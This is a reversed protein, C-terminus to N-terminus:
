QKVRSLKDLIAQLQAPEVPKTLHFVFGAEAAGQKDEEQGLGSIAIITPPRDGAQRRIEPAIDCGNLGPLGIDLLVVDPHFHNAALIAQDGDYAELTEHGSLRLLKCLSDTADRNDDVVLVKYRAGQYAMEPLAAPPVDTNDAGRPLPLRVIFESGKGAGESKATLSGAHLKVLGRSLALGIGLGGQSREIPPSVQSFIEFLRTIHTAPIGIGTDRVRIVAENSERALSLCIHGGPPTFKAANNLLNLVIQTVRTPDCELYIPLPPLSVTLTHKSSRVLPEVAEIADNLPVSLNVREKRLQLKDQTFRSVELLDDVLRALHRAQRDIISHATTHEASPSGLLRMIELANRIPALPNRLEHALTAIFVDKRQDALRLAAEAKMTRSLERAYPYGAAVVMAAGLLCLSVVLMRTAWRSAEGLTYSFADELPRLQDNLSQLETVIQEVRAPDSAALLEAADATVREILRDAHAWIDIANAIYSLNRFHVFIACMSDIDAANNKGQLFGRRAAEYDIAASPRDLAERAKRDGLPVAIAAEYKKYDLPDAYRAYRGLYYIADKQAKSWLGEGGVYARVGSLAFMSESALGILAAVAVLMPMIALSLKSLRV